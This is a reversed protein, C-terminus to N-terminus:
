SSRELLSLRSRGYSRSDLRWGVPPLTVETGSAHELCAITIRVVTQPKLLESWIRGALDTGYPPDCFIVLDRDDPGLSQLVKVADRRDLVYCSREAAVLDLNRQLGALVDVSTDVFRCFAAERSLAELGLGGTGCCLDLVRAERIRSGIISFAAEKVRDTTPRM